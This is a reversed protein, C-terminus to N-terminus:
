KRKKSFEFPLVINDDGDFTIFENSFVALILNLIKTAHSKNLRKNKVENLLTANANQVMEEM